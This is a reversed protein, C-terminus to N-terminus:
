TPGPPAQARGKQHADLYDQPDTWPSAWRPKEELEVSGLNLLERELFINIM